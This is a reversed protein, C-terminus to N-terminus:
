RISIVRHLKRASVGNVADVADWCVFNGRKDTASLSLVLAYLQKDSSPLYCATGNSLVVVIPSETEWQWIQDVTVNDSFVWANATATGLAGIVCAIVQTITRMYLEM